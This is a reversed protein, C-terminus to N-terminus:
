LDLTLSKSKARSCCVAIKKAREEPGLVVDRHEAEGECLGTVCTGCSGAECDSPVNVGNARLVQLITQEPGVTFCAGSSRLRVEFPAGGTRAIFAEFHVADMPWGSTAERVANMLGTPGCCYVDSGIQEDLLAQVDLGRAPDGGDHHLRVADGLERLAAQFPTREISRTCVHLEFRRASRALERAMALIPTLGIGGAILVYYGSDPALAFNNRPLGIRLEDGEKVQDHMAISGGRGNAERPVGIVYRDREWPGNAISYPRVFGGPIHVDVHAGAAFAPLEGGEPPVLEYSRIGEAEEAIRRVRVAVTAVAEPGSGVVAHAVAAM